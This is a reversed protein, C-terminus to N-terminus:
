AESPRAAKPVGHAVQDRLYVAEAAEAAVSYGQQHYRLALRAVAEVSPLREPYVAQCGLSAALTPYAAFGHGVGITTGAWPPLAVQEPASVRETITAPDDCQPGTFCSWYVEGLRADLAAVVRTSSPPHDPLAHLAGVTMSVLSSVGVVPRNWGLGLGQAAALAIRVGTFAGPGRGFGIVDVASPSVGARRMLEALQPVIQEAHGRGIVSEVCSLRQDVLVAVGFGETSTEIAVVVSM